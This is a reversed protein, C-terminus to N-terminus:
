LLPMHPAANLWFHIVFAMWQQQQFQGGSLKICVCILNYVLLFCCKHLIPIYSVTSLAKMKLHVCHFQVGWWWVGSCVYLTYMLVISSLPGHRRALVVHESQWERSSSHAHCDCSAQPGLDDALLWLHHNSHSRSPSCSYDFYLKNIAWVVNLVIWLDIKNHRTHM